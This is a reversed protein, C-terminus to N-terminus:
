RVRTSPMPAAMRPEPALSVPNPFPTSGIPQPAPGLEVPEPAVPTHRYLEYPPQQMEPPRRDIREFNRGSPDHISRTEPGPQQNPDSQGGYTYGGPHYPSPQRRRHYLDPRYHENHDTKLKLIEDVRASATDFVYDSIARRRGRVVHEADLLSAHDVDVVHPAWRLGMLDFMTPYVTTRGLIINQQISSEASPAPRFAPGLIPIDELLPVGRSTRSVKLAVQYRSIERLEFSSTQVQTHIFHRKVRGLHKEDARVPERINTTYMYDFDYIVSDGDPLIVPRIQFGTGTELKFISPEPVLAQLASESQGSDRPVLGMTQADTESSLGPLVNEVKAPMQTGGMMQFAALFTPDNMLAGYDQMMAKAGNFAELVAIQRKPLDFEMTAGPLVKALARNNTLISTREVQGLNVQSDRAALRIRVFAPEYFQTKMDDEIAVALRKLYNDMVCIHSRTGEILEMLKDEHEDILLNLLKRHNLDGRTERAIAEARARTIHTERIERYATAAAGRLEGLTEPEGAKPAGMARALEFYTSEVDEFKSEPNSANRYFNTLPGAIEQWADLQNVVKPELRGVVEILEDILVYYEKIRQEGTSLFKWEHFRDREREIEEKLESSFLNSTLVDDALSELSTMLQVLNDYFEEAQKQEHRNLSSGTRASWQRAQPAYQQAGMMSSMSPGSSFNMKPAMTEMPLRLDELKTMLMRFSAKNRDFDQLDVSLTLVSPAIKAWEDDLDGQSRVRAMWAARLQELAKEHVDKLM